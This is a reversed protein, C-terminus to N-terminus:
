KNQKGYLREGVIQTLELILERENPAVHGSTHQIWEKPQRAHDYLSQVSALPFFSDAEGSIILLPRPAFSGIYRNPEFPAFIMQGTWASFWDPFFFDLREANAKLIEYLDGGAQVVVLRDVRKDIVAAPVGTFVGFSVAVMTIDNTDVSPLSSIWDLCFLLQPITKFATRRLTFSTAVSNWGSFDFEGEYPYDIGVVIINDYGSIMEIVNRGTEIGVVLLAVPYATTQHSPMRARVRITESQTTMFSYDTVVFSDTSDLVVEESRLLTPKLSLFEEVYSAPLQAFLVLPFLLLLVSSVTTTM